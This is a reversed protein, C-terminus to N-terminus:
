KTLTEEFEFLKKNKSNLQNIITMAKRSDEWIKTLTDRVEDEHRSGKCIKQVTVTNPIGRERLKTNFDSARLLQINMRNAYQILSIKNGEKLIVLINDVVLPDLYWFCISIKLSAM